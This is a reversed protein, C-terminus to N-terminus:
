LNNQAMLLEINHYRIIQLRYSDIPIIIKILKTTYM